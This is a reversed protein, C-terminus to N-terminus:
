DEEGEKIKQQEMLRTAEAVLDALPPKFLDITATEIGVAEDPVVQRVPAMIAAGSLEAAPAASFEAITRLRAAEMERLRALEALRDAEPKPPFYSSSRMRTVMGEERARCIAKAREIAEEQKVIEAELKTIEIQRVSDTVVAEAARLRAIKDKQTALVKIEGQASHRTRKGYGREIYEKESKSLTVVRKWDINQNAMLDSRLSTMAINEDVVRIPSTILMNSDVSEEAQVTAMVQHMGMLNGLLMFYSLTSMKYQIKLM